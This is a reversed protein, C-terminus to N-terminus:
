QKKPKNAMAETRSSGLGVVWPRGAVYRVFVAGGQGEVRGKHTVEIYVIFIEQKRFQKLFRDENEQMRVMFEQRAKKKLFEDLRGVKTVKFTIDKFFEKAQAAAMEFMKFFQDLQEANQIGKGDRTMGEMYFPYKLHKKFGEKDLRVFANLCQMTVKTARTSKARETDLSLKSLDLGAENAKWWGMWADRVQRRVAQDATLEVKTVQADTADALLDQAKYALDMPGDALLGVLAPLAQKEKNALLVQAAQYRVKADHDALLKHIPQFEDRTGVRGLVSAAMARRAPENDSLATRLAPNLKATETALVCLANLVEEEVEENDAFPTYALLTEIAQAPARRRLVRVAAAPLAMAPGSEITAICKAARTRVEVDPNQLAPRLFPLASSGLQTLEASAKTRVRFVNSGLQDVLERLRRQDEKSLTRKRFFALLSPGDDAVKLEKLLKEDAEAFREAAEQIEKGVLAQAARLRVKADNDGLLRRVAPRQSLDGSAGMVYAAAARRAAHKDGLAARLTADPKGHKVGVALLAEYAQEEVERDDAFPVYGLLVASAGAPTRAAVLHLAALPLAKGPEKEIVEICRLARRQIEADTSKAAERLAALAPAGLGILERTAQKRAKYSEDSLQRILAAIRAPYDGTLTRKRFFALLSENDTGVDAAKLTQEERSMDADAARLGPASVLAGLTLLVAAVPVLHVPRM